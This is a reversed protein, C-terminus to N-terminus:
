WWNVRTWPLQRVTKVGTRDAAAMSAMAREAATVSDSGSTMTRWHEPAAQVRNKMSEEGLWELRQHLLAV